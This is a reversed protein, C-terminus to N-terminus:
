GPHSVAVTDQRELATRVLQYTSAPDVAPVFITLSLNPSDFPKFSSHDFTLLGMEPHNVVKRGCTRDLVVHEAWIRNFVASKTRLEDVLITDRTRDQKRDHELRYQAVVRCATDEWNVIRSRVEADLFMLRLRNRDEVAIENLPGFVIETALNWALINGVDDTVYCPNVGQHQVIQQLNRTLQVAVHPQLTAEDCLMTLHEAEVPELRLARALRQAAPRSLRIDRGQELRAIWDASLGALIGLEERRLGPTRRHTGGTNFGLEVPDLRLRRVRVFHALEARRTKTDSQM